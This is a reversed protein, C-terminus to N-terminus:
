KAFVQWDNNLQAALQTLQESASASRSAENSLQGINDNLQHLTAAINESVVQQQATATHIQANAGSIQEVANALQNFRSGTDQALQVNTNAQTFAQQMVLVADSAQQQLQDIMKNISETAQKTNASLTRVEDAVVSFGRGAEGARAAEIAANLALLNTQESIKRIVELVGSIEGSGQQLSNIVDVSHQLQAALATIGTASKDAAIYGSQCLQEAHMAIQAAVEANQVVQQVSSSMQEAAAALEQVQSAQVAASQNVENSIDFVQGAQQNLAVTSHGLKAVLHEFFHMMQNLAVAAQALEDNGRSQVRLSLDSRSVVQVLMDRLALLPHCVSRQIAWILSSVLMVLALGGLIYAQVLQGTFHQARDRVTVAASLQQQIFAETLQTFGTIRLEIESNVTSENLIRVLLADSGAYSIWEDYHKVANAFAQDLGSYYESDDQLPRSQVFGQWHQQAQAMQKKIVQETAEASAWGTRYKRIDQLATQQLIQQVMMVDSLIALHDDYLQNFLKDKQLASWFAGALVLLLMFLPLVGLLLVRSSIKLKSLM